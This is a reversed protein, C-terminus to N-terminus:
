ASKQTTKVQSTSLSIAKVLQPSLIAAFATLVADKIFFPGMGISTALLTVDNVGLVNVTYLYLYPVGIGYNILLGIFCATIYVPLSPKNFKEIIFGVVYALVIFSLIFGFTAQGVIHLGGQFGAFVPVGILGVIAYGIMAFTGVKKGLLVGALIAIITQFTLPVAGVTIFATLNAGIAMLAIFMAAKTLEVVSFFQNKENTM